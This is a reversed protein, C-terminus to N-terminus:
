QASRKWNWKRQELEGRHPAPTTDPAPSVRPKCIRWVGPANPRWIRGAPLSGIRWATVTQQRPM